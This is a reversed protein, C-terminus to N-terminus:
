MDFANISKSKTDLARKRKGRNLNYIGFNGKDSNSLFMEYIPGYQSKLDEISGRYFIWNYKPEPGVGRLSGETRNIVVENCVNSHMRNPAEYCNLTLCMVNELIQSTSIINGYPNLDTYSDDPHMFSLNRLDSINLYRFSVYRDLRTFGCLFVEKYIGSDHIVLINGAYNIGSTLAYISDIYRKYEEQNKEYRDFDVFTKYRNFFRVARINGM